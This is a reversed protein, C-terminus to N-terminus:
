YCGGNTVKFRLEQLNTAPTTCYGRWLMKVKSTSALDFFALIYSHAYGGQEYHVFCKDNLFGAFILRERPVSSDRIDDTAEFTQGPNAMRLRSGGQETFVDVVQRPLTKMDKVIAFDGELFQQRESQSIGASPLEIRPAEGLPKSVKGWYRLVGTRALAFLLVCLVIITTALRQNTLMTASDYALCGVCDMNNNV